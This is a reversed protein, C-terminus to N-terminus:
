KKLYVNSLFSIADELQRMSNRQVPLMEIVIWGKYAIERLSAAAEHHNSLPDSFHILNPQSVHFHCLEYKSAFVADSISGRSLYVCATDLHVKINPHDIKEVIDIVEESNTLFDGGYCEPVPEIGLTLGFQAAIDGLRRLREQGIENSTHIPLEDRRRNHPAGLVAVAIGLWEAVQGLHQVHECMKQFAAPHKLLQADPKKYFLGQLSSPVLNREKLLRGYNKITVKTQDSWEEIRCPAIEVGSIGYKSLTELASIIESPQWALNSISGKM